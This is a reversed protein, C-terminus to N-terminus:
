IWTDPYRVQSIYDVYSQRGTSTKNLWISGEGRPFLSAAGVQRVGLGLQHHELKLTYEEVNTNDKYKM